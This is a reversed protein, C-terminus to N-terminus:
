AYNYLMVIVTIICIIVFLCMYDYIVYLIYMHTYFVNM